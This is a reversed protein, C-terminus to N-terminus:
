YYDILALHCVKLGSKKVGKSKLFERLQMCKESGLTANLYARQMRAGLKESQSRPDQNEDGHAGIGTTEDNAVLTMPRQTAPRPLPSTHLPNFYSRISTSGVCTRDSNANRRAASSKALPTAKATDPASGELERNWQTADNFIRVTGDQESGYSTTNRNHKLLFGQGNGQLFSDVRAIGDVALSEAAAVAGAPSTRNVRGMAEPGCNVRFESNKSEVDDQSIARANLIPFLSDDRNGDRKLVENELLTFGELSCIINVQQQYPLQHTKDFDIKSQGTLKRDSSSLNPLAASPLNRYIYPMSAKNQYSEDDVRRLLWCFKAENLSGQARLGNEVNPAFFEQAMAVDQTDTREFWDPTFVPDGGSEAWRVWAEKKLVLGFGGTSVAVVLRKFWHVYDYIPILLRSADLPNQEPQYLNNIFDVGESFYRDLECVFSCYAHWQHLEPMKPSECGLFYLLSLVASALCMELLLEDAQLVLQTLSQSFDACYQASAKLQGPLTIPSNNSGDLVQIANSLVPVLSSFRCCISSLKKLQEEHAQKNLLANRHSSDDSDPDQEKKNLTVRTKAALQNMYEFLRRMFERSISLRLAIRAPFGGDLLLTKLDEVLASTEVKSTNLLDELLEVSRVIPVSPDVGPIVSRAYHEERGGYNVAGDIKRQGKVVRCTVGTKGLDTEISHLGIVLVRGNKLAHEEKKRFAEVLM